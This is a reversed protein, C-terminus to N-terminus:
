TSSLIFIDEINKDAMITINVVDYTIKVVGKVQWVINDLIPSLTEHLQSGVVVVVVVVLTNHHSLCM